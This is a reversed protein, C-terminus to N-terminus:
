RTASTSRGTTRPSSTDRAGRRRRGRGDGHAGQRAAVQLGPGREGGRREGRHGRSAGAGGAGIVLVDHEHTEYKARRRAMSILRSTADLHRGAHRRVMRIYVDTLAVRSSARGRSRSTGSTSSRSSSGSATACSRRAGGDLLQERRRRHPAPLQPLRLHVASSCRVNALMVLTGLRRGFTRRRGELGCSPWSWTRGSCSWSSSRSTCRTATCTRSSSSGRRATTSTRRASASPARRRTWAFARYYAKRYYYCTFRFSAPGAPHADGAHPIPWGKACSTDFLPSYFPSLYPLDLAQVSAVAHAGDYWNNEFARFTAYVIFGLLIAVTAVPGAWWADKRMTQGFGLVPLHVTSNGM